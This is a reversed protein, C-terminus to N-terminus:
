TLLNLIVLPSPFSKLKAYYIDQFTQFRLLFKGHYQDFAQKNQGPLMFNAYLKQNQEFHWKMAPSFEPYFM